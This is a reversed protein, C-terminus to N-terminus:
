WIVHVIVIVYPTIQSAFFVFCFRLFPHVTCSVHVTCLLFNQLRRFDSPQSFKVARGFKKRAGIEMCEARREKQNRIKLASNLEFEEHKSRSLLKPM